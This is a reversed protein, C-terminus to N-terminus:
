CHIDSATQVILQPVFPQLEIEPISFSPRCVDTDLQSGDTVSFHQRFSIRNIM